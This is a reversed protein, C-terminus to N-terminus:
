ILLSFKNINDRRFTTQGSCGLPVDGNRVIVAMQLIVIGDESTTREM